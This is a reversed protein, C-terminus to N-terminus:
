KRRTDPRWARIATRTPFSSDLRDHDREHCSWTERCRRRSRKGGLHERGPGSRCGSRRHVVTPVVLERVRCDFIEPEQEFTPRASHGLEM